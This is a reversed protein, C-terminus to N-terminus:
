QDSAWSLTLYYLGGVSSGGLISSYSKDLINTAALKATLGIDEFTYRVQADVTWYSPVEGSVLFSVYDFKSQYRYTIGAGLTKWINDVIVSGNLLVAPTNYGDELGDRDETKDLHSYTVNGIRATCFYKM